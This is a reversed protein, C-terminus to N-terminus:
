KSDYRQTLSRHKILTRLDYYTYLVKSLDKQCVYDSLRQWLENELQTVTKEREIEIAM